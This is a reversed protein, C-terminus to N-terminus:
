NNPIVLTQMSSTLVFTTSTKTIGFNIQTALFAKKSFLLYNRTTLFKESLSVSTFRTPNFEIRFQQM